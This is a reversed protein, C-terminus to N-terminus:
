KSNRKTRKQDRAYYNKWAVKREKKNSLWSLADSKFTEDCEPIVLDDKHCGNLLCGKPIINFEVCDVCLKHKPKLDKYKTEQERIFGDRVTKGAKLYTGSCYSSGAMKNKM